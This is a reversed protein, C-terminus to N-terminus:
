KEMGFFDILCQEYEQKALCISEAHAAESVYLLRKRSPCAKFLEHVMYSPVMPDKGGQVFFIPVRAKQVQSLATVSHLDYGMKKVCIKEVKQMIKKANPLQLQSALVEMPDSYGCDAVIGQVQVPLNEGSASLVTAAGMSVGHLIIEVDDGYTDVIYKAWDVCDLRDLVGFGIYEGESPRHGRDDPLLMNYGHKRYFEIYPGFEPRAYSRYGHIGLVFKKSPREAKYLYAHLKLGDFSEMYADEHGIQEMFAMGKRSVIYHPTGQYFKPVKKSRKPKKFIFQFVIWPFSVYYILCICLVGFFIYNLM